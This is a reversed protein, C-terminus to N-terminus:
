RRAVAHIVQRHEFYVIFDPYEWRTIPPDGVAGRRAQPQGFTSEVREMTMGRSPREPVVQTSRELQDILLVDATALPACCALLLVIATKRLM